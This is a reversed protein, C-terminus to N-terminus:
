RNGEKVVRIHSLRDKFQDLSNRLSADLVRNGIVLRYGALLENRQRVDVSVKKFLVTELSHQIAHLSKDQLPRATELQVTVQGQAEEFMAHFAHYISGVYKSRKRTYLLTLLQKLAQPMGHDFLKDLVAIKDNAAIYPHNFFQTAEKSVDVADAVARLAEDLIGAKGQEKAALFAAQAYRRIISGNLM